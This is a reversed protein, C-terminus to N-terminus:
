ARRLRLKEMIAKAVKRGGEGSPEIANVYDAPATCVSRLDIVDAAYEGAIRYVVDDFLAVALRAPEAEPDPLAGNYITCLILSVDAAAMLRVVERYRARFAEVPGSFRELAEAVTRAEEWLLYESSLADNGGSSLVLHTADRPVELLQSRVGQTMCGDVALLTVRSSDMGAASLERRLCEAVDPDPAAYRANDFVSDGLLVIHM